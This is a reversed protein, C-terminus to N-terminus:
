YSNTLLIANTETVWGSTGSLQFVVGAGVADVLTADDAVANVLALASGSWGYIWVGRAGVNGGTRVASIMYLGAPVSM